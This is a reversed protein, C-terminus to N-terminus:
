TESNPPMVPSAALEMPAPSALPLALLATLQAQITSDVSASATKLSIVIFHISVVLALETPHAAPRVATLVNSALPETSSTVLLAPAPQPSTTSSPELPAPTANLLTPLIAFLATFLLALMASSPRPQTLIIDLSVPAPETTLTTISVLKPTAIFALPLLLPPILVLTSLAAPFVADLTLIM